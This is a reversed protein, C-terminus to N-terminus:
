FLVSAFIINAPTKNKLNAAKNPASKDSHNISMIFLHTNKLIPNLEEGDLHISSQVKKM